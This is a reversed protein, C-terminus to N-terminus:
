FPAAEKPLDVVRNDNRVRDLVPKLVESGRYLTSYSGVMILKCKARTIAVNLRRFDELLRGVRGKVNSRVFSVIIVPKDRGQYRDITSIELGDDRWKSLSACDGLIHLQLVPLFTLKRRSLISLPAGFALSTRVQARFPCIVGISSADLGCAVLGGVIDRVLGAETDNVTCGRTGGGSSRELPKISQEIADSTGASGIKDTNVFIVPSDPDVVRHLWSSNTPGGQNISPINEPFGSLQLRRRRVADNGCKLKGKYIIDNSLQCIDEHMRYQFTLQAVSSEHAEALRKLM